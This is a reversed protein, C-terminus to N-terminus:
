KYHGVRYFEDNLLRVIGGFTYIAVQVDANAWPNDFYTTIDSTSQPLEKTFRLKQFCRGDFGLSVVSVLERPERKQVIFVADHVLYKNSGEFLKKPLLRPDSTPLSGEMNMIYLMESVGQRLVEDVMEIQIDTIGLDFAYYNVTLDGTQLAISFGLNPDDFVYPESVTWKQTDTEYPILFEKTLELSGCSANAASALFLGIVLPCLKKIM